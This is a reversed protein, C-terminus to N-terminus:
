TAIVKRIPGDNLRVIRLGRGMASRGMFDFDHLEIQGVAVHRVSSCYDDIINYFDEWGPAHQYLLTTGVPVHLETNYLDVNMFAFEADPPTTCSCAASKLNNNQYFAADGILRVSPGLTVSRMASCFAFAQKGILQVEDPMVVETTSTCNQFAASGITLLSAPLALQKLGQCDYFPQVGISQLQNPWTLSVLATDNYFLGKPVTTLAAPLVAETLYNCFSFAYEGVSTLGEPLKVLELKQSNRLATDPISDVGATQSLDLSSLKGMQAIQGVVMIDQNNLPGAITLETWVNYNRGKIKDYYFTGEHEVSIRIAYAELCPLLVFTLLILRRFADRAIRTMM